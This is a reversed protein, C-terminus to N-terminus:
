VLLGMHHFKEQPVELVGIVSANYKQAVAILQALAPVDGVMIEDPLFLGFYERWNRTRGNIGCHGLASLNQNHVFTFDATDIIANIDALLKSKGANKSNKRLIKMMAFITKLRKKIMM